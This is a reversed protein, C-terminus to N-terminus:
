KSEKKPSEKKPSAKKPSEIGMKKKIDSILISKKGSKRPAGSKDDEAFDEEKLNHEAALDKAASSGWLSVTKQKSEEGIFVRIDNITIKDGKGTGSIQSIKSIDSHEEAFKKAAPSSFASPRKIKDGGEITKVTEYIENIDIKFKKSIAEFLEVTQSQTLTM